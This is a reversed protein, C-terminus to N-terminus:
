KITLHKITQQLIKQRAVEVYRTQDVKEKCAWLFLLLFFPCRAPANLGRLMLTSVVRLDTNGCTVRGTDIAPLGGDM